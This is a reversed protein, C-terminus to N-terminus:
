SPHKTKPCHIDLNVFRFTGQQTLNLGSSSLCFRKTAPIDSLFITCTLRKVINKNLNRLKVSYSPSSYPINVQKINAVELSHQHELRPLLLDIFVRNQLDKKRRWKGCNHDKKEYIQEKGNRKNSICHSMRLPSITCSYSRCKPATLVM